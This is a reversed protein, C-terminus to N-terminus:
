LVEQDQLATPKLNIKLGSSEKEAPIGNGTQM